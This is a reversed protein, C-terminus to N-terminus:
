EGSAEIKHQLTEVVDMCNNIMSLVSPHYDKDNIILQEVTHLYFWVDVVKKYRNESNNKSM